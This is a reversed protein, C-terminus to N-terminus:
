WRTAGPKKRFSVTNNTTENIVGLTESTMDVDLVIHIDNGDAIGALVGEFKKRANKIIAVPIEFCKQDCEFIMAGGDALPHPRGNIIMIFTVSSGIAPNRKRNITIYYTHPLSEASDATQSSSTYSM